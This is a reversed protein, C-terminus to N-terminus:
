SCSGTKSSAQGSLSLSICRSTVGSLSPSANITFNTTLSSLRGDGRFTVPSTNGSDVISLNKYASQERLITAPPCTSGTGIKWGGQWNRGTTRCMSISANRKVAESRAQTLAAVLDFSATKVRQSAIFSRFSPLAFTALIGGIAIAIMLETLTFGSCKPRIFIRTNAM